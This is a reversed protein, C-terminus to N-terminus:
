IIGNLLNALDQAKQRRTISQLLENNIDFNGSSQRAHNKIGIICEKINNLDSPDALFVNKFNRLYDRTAGEPLLGLIDNGTALYEYTKGPIQPGASESQMLILADANIIQDFYRDRPLPADIKVIDEIGLSDIIRRLRGQGYEVNGLIELNIENKGLEGCSILEAIARFLPSPDRGMYLTGAYLFVLPKGSIPAIRTRGKFDDEDYGNPITAIKRAPLSHRNTLQGTIAETSSVVMDARSMLRRELFREAALSVANFHSGIRNGSTWPDRFDVALKRGTLLKAILGVLHCTHPPGSTYIVDIKYKRIIRVANISAPVLWGIADDPTQSLSSIFRKWFPPLDARSAVDMKASQMQDDKGNAASPKRTRVKRKFWRYGDDLTPWKGTRFIRCEFGLPSQDVKPIHRSDVTLVFPEWGFDPLYKAFKVSRVAGVELDPHFHYAILLIKPM